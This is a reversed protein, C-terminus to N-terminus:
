LHRITEYEINKEFITFFSLSTDHKADHQPTNQILIM